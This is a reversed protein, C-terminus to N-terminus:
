SKCLPSSDFFEFMVKGFCVFQYLEVLMLLFLIRRQDPLVFLGHPMGGLLRAIIGVFIFISEKRLLSVIIAQQLLLFVLMVLGPKIAVIPM